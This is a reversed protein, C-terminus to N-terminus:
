ITSIELSEMKAMAEDSSLAQQINPPLTQFKSITDQLSM